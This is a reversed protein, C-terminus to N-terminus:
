RTFLENMPLAVPHGPQFNLGLILAITTAIQSQTWRGNAKMEGSSVMGPGMAAVWIEHADPVKRGHDKWTAKVRDGRGHDTTIIIATKDKYMPDGQIYSWLEAILRDTMAAAQLYPGYKGAHALDDTEDFGIFLVRPKFKKMYAFAMYFTLLDPRVGDGLPRYTTRQMGDLMAFVPDPFGSSEFGSNVPVGSREENLIWPFVDWSSFAAVRNRFPEQKHIYELVNIHPNPIKDNSNIASDPYGTFIENYGPYSFWHPNANSVQNGYLRNGFLSGKKAVVDWFFPLLKRRRLEPSADWYQAIMQERDETYVSDRILISDAGSFLEQWRFGDLTIVIVNEAKRLQSFVPSGIILALLILFRIRM